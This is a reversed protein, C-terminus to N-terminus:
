LHKIVGRELNRKAAERKKSSGSVSEGVNSHVGTHVPVYPLLFLMVLVCIYVRYSCVTHDKCNM